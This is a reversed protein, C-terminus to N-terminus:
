STPYRYEALRLRYGLHALVMAVLFVAVVAIVVFPQSALPDPALSASDSASFAGVLIASALTLLLASPLLRGIHRRFHRALIGGSAYGLVLMVASPALLLWWYMLPSLCLSGRQAALAQGELQKLDALAAYLGGTGPVPAGIKQDPDTLCQTADDAAAFNAQADTDALHVCTELQGLIFQIQVTGPEGAANGVAAATIDTNVQATDNAFQDGTGTLTVEGGAFVSKLSASADTAATEADGIYQIAQQTRIAATIEHHATFAIALWLLMTSFMALLVAHRLWRLVSVPHATRLRRYRGRPDPRKM